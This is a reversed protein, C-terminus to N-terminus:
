AAVNNFFYKFILIAFWQLLAAAMLIKLIEGHLPNVDNLEKIALFYQNGNYKDFIEKNKRTLYIVAIMELLMFFIMLLAFSKLSM